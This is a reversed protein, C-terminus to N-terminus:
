DSMLIHTHTHTHARAHTHAHTYTCVYTHIYINYIYIYSTLYISEGLVLFSVALIHTAGKKRIKVPWKTTWFSATLM